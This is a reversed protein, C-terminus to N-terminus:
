SAVTAIEFTVGRIMRGAAVGRNLSTPTVESDETGAPGPIGATAMSYTREFRTMARGGIIYGAIDTQGDAGVGISTTLVINDDDTKTSLLYEGLTAGTGGTIVVRKNTTSNAYRGFGAVKLLNKSSHTFTAGTFFVKGFKSFVNLFNARKVIADADYPNQAHVLIINSYEGSSLSDADRYLFEKM